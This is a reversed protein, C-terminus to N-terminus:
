YGGYKWAWRIRSFKIAEFHDVAYKKKENEIGSQQRCVVHVHVQVEFVFADTENVSFWAICFYHLRRKRLWEGNYPLRGANKWRQRTETSNEAWDKLSIFNWPFFKWWHLAHVYLLELLKLYHVNQHHWPRRNKLQRPFTHSKLFRIFKWRCKWGLLLSLLLM